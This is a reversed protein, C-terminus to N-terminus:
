DKRIMRLHAPNVCISIRNEPGIGKLRRLPLPLFRTDFNM